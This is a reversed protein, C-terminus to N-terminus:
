CFIYDSFDDMMCFNSFFLGGMVMIIYLLDFFIEIDLCIIFEVM